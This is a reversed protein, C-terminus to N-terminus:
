EVKKKKNRRSMQLSLIPLLIGLLPLTTSWSKYIISQIGVLLIALLLIIQIVQTRDLTRKFVKKSILPILFFGVLGYFTVMGVVALIVIWMQSDM